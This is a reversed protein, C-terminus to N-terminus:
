IKTVAIRLLSQTKGLLKQGKAVRKGKRQQWGEPTALRQESTCPFHM